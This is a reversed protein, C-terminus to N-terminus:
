NPILSTTAQAIQPYPKINLSPKKEKFSYAALGAMLNLLFGNASRHRTHEIQSINKLQDNVTEIIARKRLLISDVESLLKQKMKKRLKTILEIGKENLTKSLSQNIYGKDGYLKGFLNKTLSQMVKINADHINGCTVHFAIIEGKDNIIPVLQIKYNEKDIREWKAKKNYEDISKNMLTEIEQIEQKTLTAPKANKFPSLETITYPIVAFNSDTLHIIGNTKVAAHCSFVSCISILLIVFSSKM